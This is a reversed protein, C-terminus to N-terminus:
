LVYHFAKELDLFTIYFQNNVALCKEQLQWVVIIAITTGGGSVFGSQSNDISM